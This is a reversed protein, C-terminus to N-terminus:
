EGEAKETVSMYQAIMLSIEKKVRDMTSRLRVLESRKLMVREAADKEAQEVSRFVSYSREAAELQAKLLLRSIESELSKYSVTENKLKEMEAKLLELQRAEDALQKRLQLLNNKYEQDMKKLIDDVSAPSYGWFSRKCKTKLM